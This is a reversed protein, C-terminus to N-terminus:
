GPPPFASSGPSGLDGCGGPIQTTSFKWNSGADNLTADYKDLPLYLSKGENQSQGVLPFGQGAGYGLEDVVIGATMLMIEDSDNALNYSTGFAYAAAVGGNVAPNAVKALVMYAGPAVVLPGGNEIIHVDVGKDKIIWGNIDWAKDGPNYIEFWEGDKDFVCKPNPMFETILLAGKTPFGEDADGDCDNDLGDNLEPSAGEMPNCTQPVGAICNEIAHFCIGLGCATTGLSEDPLGDCDNDLADCVEDKKGEYPDCFQPVGALCAPVTHLCQGNGCTYEGLEEDVQGDCDNDMLDCSVEAGEEYAPNKLLYNALACSTWHGDSCLTQSKFAGACIGETLECTVPEKNCLDGCGDPGCDKGACDPVCVCEGNVCQGATCPLSNPVYVCLPETESVSMCSDDTCVNWDDCSVTTVSVCAGGACMDGVTCPDGDSCAASNAQFGCQGGTCSDNTCVNSDDCTEEDTDGDCDNDTGDCVEAAPAAADCASLGSEACARKGQCMGFDNSVWCRTWAIQAVAKATCPCDGADAICRSAALGDVTEVAHCTFGDPCAGGEGCAGACFSGAEGYIVCVDGLSVETECDKTQTCPRCLTPYDSVCVYTLDPGSGGLPKCQWGIPCEEQCEVTCVGDGMHDVCWGSACDANASCPDLFCGSGPPCGGPADGSGIDLSLLDLSFLEPGTDFTPLADPTAAFETLEATADATGGDSDHTQGCGAVAAVITVATTLRGSM